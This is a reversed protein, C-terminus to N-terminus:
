ACRDEILLAAVTVLARRTAAEACGEHHQVEEHHFLHPRDLASATVRNGNSCVGLNLVRALERAQASDQLPIFPFVGIRNSYQDGKVHTLKLAPAVKRTLAEDADSFPLGRKDLDAPTIVAQHRTAYDLTSDLLHHPDWLHLGNHTLLDLMSQVTNLRWLGTVVPDNLEVLLEEIRQPDCVRTFERKAQVPEELSEIGYELVKYLGDSIRKGLEARPQDVLNVFGLNRWFDRLSGVTSLCAQRYFAAIKSTDGSNQLRMFKERTKM